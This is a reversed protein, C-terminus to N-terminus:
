RHGGRMCVCVCVYVHLIALASQHQGSLRALPRDHLQQCLRMGGQVVQVLHTGRVSRMVNDLSVVTEVEIAGGGRGVCMRLSVLVLMASVVKIAAHRTGLRLKTDQLPGRLQEQNGTGEDLM